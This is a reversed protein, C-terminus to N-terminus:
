NAKDREPLTKGIKQGSLYSQGMAEQEARIDPIALAAEVSVTGKAAKITAAGSDPFIPRKKASSPITLIGFLLIVLIAVFYVESIQWM